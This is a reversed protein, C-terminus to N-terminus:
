EEFGPDDSSPAFDEGSVKKIKERHNGKINMKKIPVIKAESESGPSSDALPVAKGQVVVVLDLVVGNLISSQSRLQDASVSSSQAVSTNQQTVQEMQGVAKSIERIGTSQETSAVAIESVLSDVSQVNTLIEGLAENCDKATQTGQRVKDKSSNMLREVKSKTESVISEVKHVSEDLLTSIEKAANGSMQALNGVEEAVVAFGKGYEGARAAEVSANFSLLKTQFVIENIVKTKSGIDMILKTIESLQRNSSEMQQSIEDNSHDIDDIAAMMNEVIRRGKEAAERSQQSVDKSRNAAEANKEVMASIEDVAAVTQQLAAAQETASESLQTASAAIKESAGSVGTSNKALTETIQNISKSIAIGFWIALALSVLSSMLLVIYFNRDAALKTAFASEVKTHVFATWGLSNIWKSNDIYHYGVVDTTTEGEYLSLVNGSEGAGALKGAPNHKKVFNEKLIIEPDSVVDVKGTKQNWDAFSIIAGERNAVTVEADGQGQSRLSEVAGILESEFWRKGARNSIVGIVKGKADKIVSSFSSGFALEGFAQKVLPDAIFDEFYTGSFGKAKDDTTRGEIVAKFWPAEKYNIERLGNGKVLSGGPNKTSSAVLKGDLDVVVILDYIGYLAVYQDLLPPLQSKDLSQVLPNLAFAQVDGYREFFQASIGRGLVLADTERAKGLAEEFKDGFSKMDFFAGVGLLLTVFSVMAIIKTRLSLNWSFKM